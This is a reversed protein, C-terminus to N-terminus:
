RPAVPEESMYASSTNDTGSSRIPPIIFCTSNETQSRENLVMQALNTWMTWM